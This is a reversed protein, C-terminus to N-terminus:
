SGTDRTQRRFATHCDIEGKPRCAGIYGILGGRHPYDPRNASSRRSTQPSSPPTSSCAAGSVAPPSPADRLSLLLDLTRSISQRRREFNFGNPGSGYFFRGGIAPPGLLTEVDAGRDHRRLYSSLAELSSVGARVAPWEGVLGRLVCPRYSPEIEERFTAPDVDRREPLPQLAARPGDAASEPVQPPM